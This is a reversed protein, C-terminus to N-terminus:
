RLSIELIQYDKAHILLLEGSSTQSKTESPLANDSNRLLQRGRVSLPKRSMSESVLPARCTRRVKKGSAFVQFEGSILNKLLKSKV